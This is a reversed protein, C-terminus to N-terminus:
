SWFFTIHSYRITIRKEPWHFFLAYAQEYQCVLEGHELHQWENVSPGCHSIRVLCPILGTHTKSNWFCKKRKIEYFYKRGPM